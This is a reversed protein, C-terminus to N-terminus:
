DWISGWLASLGCGIGVAAAIPAGVVAATATIGTVGLATVASAAAAGTLTAAAAAGAGSIASGATDKITDVVADETSKDDNFVSIINTIASIGGGVVAGAAGGSKSATKAASALSGANGAGVSKALAKTTNSSIGTSKMRKVIGAKEAAENFKKTTEITGKLTASNYQGAKVKKITDAVNKVNKYQNRGIIKGGSKVVTDVTKATTSKTLTETLGNFPNFNTKDSAMIELIHGHLNPNNGARAIARAKVSGEYGSKLLNGGANSKTDNSM